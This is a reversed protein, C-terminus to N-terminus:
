AGNDRLMTIAHVAMGVFGIAVGVASVYFGVHGSLYVAVLWGAAAICFGVIGIRLGHLRKRGLRVEVSVTAPRLVTAIGFAVGGIVGGGVAGPLGELSAVTAVSHGMLATVAMVAILILFNGRAM